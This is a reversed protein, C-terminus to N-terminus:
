RLLVPLCAPMCIVWMLWRRMAGYRPTFLSTTHM